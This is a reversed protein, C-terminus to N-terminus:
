SEPVLIRITVGSSGVGPAQNRVGSKGEGQAVTPRLPLGKIWRLGIQGVVSTTTETRARTASLPQEFWGASVALGAFCDGAAACGGRAGPAGSAVVGPCAGFTTEPVTVSAM